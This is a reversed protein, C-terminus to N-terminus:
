SALDRRNFIFFALAACCLTVIAAMVLSTAEVEIGSFIESANAESREILDETGKVETIDASAGFISANGKHGPM